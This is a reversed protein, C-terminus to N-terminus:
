TKVAPVTLTQRTLTRKSKQPQPRVKHLEAALLTLVTTIVSLSQSLSAAVQRAYEAVVTFLKTPSIGHLPGGRLLTLWHKVVLGLLKAYIEVLIREGTRGWSFGWGAQQKARKFLLEVQWRCRYVLWVEKASLMAAPVNTALTTWDCQRLQEASPERGKKSRTYDRLKQRRRSAVETPCRLAVLRCALGVSAVLCVLEDIVAGRAAAQLGSLHQWTEQYYALTGAPVRSIWYKETGFEQWRRSDVFGQDALHLGGVPVDAARAALTKDSMKGAHVSLQCVEGTSVDWRLLVKLAAAGDGEYRGGCGPFQDALEAPLAVLTTDEVLTQTFRDLLGLPQRRAQWAQQLARELLAKLFAQAKADLRQQLAQPSVDLHRAMSELTARPQAMWQCVLTTAFDSAALQRQRQIFGTSRGLQESIVTFLDQLCRAMGKLQALM